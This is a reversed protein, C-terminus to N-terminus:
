AAGKKKPSPEWLLLDAIPIGYRKFCRRALDGSCVERGNVVDCVYGESRGIGEAFEKLTLNHQDCYHRIPNKM